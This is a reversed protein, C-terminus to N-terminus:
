QQHSSSSRRTPQQQQSSSSTVRFKVKLDGRHGGEPPLPLGLGRISRVGGDQAEGPAIHLSASQGQFTPIRIKLEKRAQDPTLKCTFVLDYGERRLYKHPKDKLVFHMAALGDTPPFEVDYVGMGARFQYVHSARAHTVKIKKECGKWLEELTCPVEVTRVVHRKNSGRPQGGGGGAGFHFSRMSPLDDFGPSSGGGFLFSSLDDMTFSATSSSSSRTTTPPPTRRGGFMSEFMDRADNFTFEAFDGSRSPSSTRGPSFLGGGADYVRRQEPNSLVSYAESIEKFKKEAEKKGSAHKDPHHKLALKRYAANIEKPSASRPLGLTKYHDAACRGAGALLLLLCLGLTVWAPM